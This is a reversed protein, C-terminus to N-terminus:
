KKRGGRERVALSLMTEPGVNYHALSNADQLVGVGDRTIRQKNAPLQLVEALRAKIASVTDLLSAVEMELLQGNLNENDEVDPCLIRVKSHGPHADLFEDEAQLVFDTRARKADHDGPPPPGSPPAPAAPPAPGAPPRPMGQPPPMPGGPMRPPPPLNGYPQPPPAMPQPYAPPYAPPQMQHPYQPQPAVPRMTQPPPPLPTPAPRPPPPPLTPPAQAPAAAPGTPAGTPAPGLIPKPMAEPEKRKLDGARQDAIQKVQNQLDQGGMTAGDWAVDRDNGSIKSDKISAEVISSLEDQTSGFVDPRARALGMLNRGIEDDSAKTTDKIKALMADRQDKWRPDILSIRMHEGMQEIPVLEGTIPSVVMGGANGRRQEPRKYDRVIKMQEPEEDDEIEMVADGSAPPPVAEEPAEGPPPQGAAQGEAILAKEAEDMEVKGNKAADGDEEAAPEEAELGAKNLIIVDRQTMPPPLEADEDQYFDITEVVTFDHWDISQMASREAELQSAAAKAEASKAKEYELRRLCRELLATRNEATRRLKGPLDKPPMLVKFYADCLATFFGFFSNTPKLFNFHPNGHEKAALGTLFAKGNRAVFQATLRITDLDLAAMGEPTPVSYQDPEPPELPKVADSLITAAKDPQQAAASLADAQQQQQQATGPASDNGAANQAETVKYRYYAHYPDTSRLFNFKVNNAENALIKKEFTLGNRGVFDATKDVIARIDPPPQILGIARTQTDVSKVQSLNPSPLVTRAEGVAVIQGNGMNLDEMQAQAQAVVENEMAM